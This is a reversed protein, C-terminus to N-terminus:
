SIWVSFDQMAGRLSTSNDYHAIAAGEVFANIPAARMIGEVQRILTMSQERTDSWVAVQIRANKLQSAAAELFNIAKGGVQQYVIYPRPTEFDAVDPFVRGSVLADLASVIDAETM